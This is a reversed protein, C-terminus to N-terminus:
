ASANQLRAHVLAWEPQNPCGSAMAFRIRRVSVTVLAGIKLLKLRITGCTAQAFQTHALGIRRLACLLVYAMSAFWLRLQNARMTAASTRDAFLDGQAEKLRNEMDGRACYVEEYLHGGAVETPKLSTVIFRPNAEGGTWEAKAIVRRRRSWSDLTSWSFDRFRRAPKGTRGAEEEAQILAVAIEAVLRENRALGFVFDVRNGECWAMLADRAFGSDARLLIRVRPWRARIQGVIREVEEIAGASADINSRRLKAALLHRGCFIYLPLYCYGDYYGHFFRGEQHGHIPDDTADLDLVIQKPATRQAELFLSVFLREVAAGDCSVRHYRTPEPGSLELRNLTSKGALPACDSRRAALKRALVALAPDHRLEDHDVLDEYGLAIGFVRQGVLTAVGHEIRTSDREDRF